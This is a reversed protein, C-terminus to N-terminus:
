RTMSGSGACPILEDPYTIRPRKVKEPLNVLKLNWHKPKEIPASLQIKLNYAYVAQALLRNVALQLQDPKIGKLWGTDYGAVVGGTQQILYSFNPEGFVEEPTAAERNSFMFVLIRAHTTRLVKNLQADTTKGLNNGGDTILFVLDDPGPPDLLQLGAILADRLATRKGPTVAKLADAIQSSSQTFGVRVEVKDAFTVLAVQSQPAASLVDLAVAKAVPLNDLMSGSTDMLIAIRRPAPVPEASVITVDRGGVQGRFNAAQLNIVPNGGKDIVSAVVTRDLCPGATQAQLVGVCGALGLLVLIRHRRVKPM